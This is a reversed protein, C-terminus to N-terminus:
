KTSTNATALGNGLIAVALGLWRSAEDETIWGYGVAVLSVALLVRYVWARQTDSLNVLDFLNM